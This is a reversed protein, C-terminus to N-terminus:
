HINLSPDYQYWSEGDYHQTVALVLPIPFCFVVLVMYNDASSQRNHVILFGVCLLYADLINRINM